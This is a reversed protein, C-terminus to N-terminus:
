RRKILSAVYVWVSLVNNPFPHIHVALAFEVDPSENFHVGTAKVAETVTTMDVYPLNIPFGCMKHSALIYQLQQMHEPSTSQRKNWAAEELAPLLKRLVATCYRNWLTRTTPRWRALSDRLHKELRDRLRRCAAVSTETYELVPPQVSSCPAPVDASFAPWWDSRRGTDYRTRCPLDERQTNAWVNKDNLLCHVRRLPCFSDAVDCCHATVPDWLRYRGAPEVTLVYASPGHPAAEGLLVWAQRGAHLLYCCLLVAHDESDGTLLQLVQSSTLWIDFLGPFLMSGAVVPIMAVFRAAMEATTDEGELIVPPPLPRIFRTVCVTKGSTDVVTTKVKRHPFLKAVDREWADLHHEVHALESSELRVKIPKPPNLTPQVTIFLTLFAADRSPSWMTTDAGPSSTGRFPQGRHPEREYGLLVAPCKLRFTGETRPNYCLATFPIRLSGLWSRELRHHVNTPRLRDDEVLDVVVEDFLHFFVSDRVSQWGAASGDGGVARVPIQLEENWTPSCGEATATRATSEQFTVEVFPRVVPTQQVRLGLVSGVTDTDKRAPVQFAQVVSVIIKVEAGALSQVAVARREQREPRLPRKPRLWKMLTLGLTGIDPVHDETVLDRLERHQRALRCQRFVRQRVELLFRRGYARHADLPEMAPDAPEGAGSQRKECVSFVEMPIEKENLPVACVGRFEPEGKDRLRLLRLRPNDDLHKGSCFDFQSQVPDLRFYEPEKPVAAVAKKIINFFSANSPDNPDLHSKEVWQRLKTVAVPGDTHLLAMIDASGNDRTHTLYKDPVALINGESSDVGWGARCSVYGSTHLCERGLSSGGPFPSFYLGSGVGSHSPVVVQTSSFELRMAKCNQLTTSSSPFPVYVEAILHRKFTSEEEHLEIKLCEPLQIICIPFVEGFTVAFTDNLPHRSSECVVSDNFFIKVYLKRHRVAARRARENNPAPNQDVPLSHTLELHLLPEGPPRMCEKLREEVGAAMGVVDLEGSEEVEEDESAEDARSDETREQAAEQQRKCAKREELLEETERRVAEDWAAQQERPDGGQEQRIHLRAPTVSYGQAERLRKLDRWLCLIGALLQRDRCGEQQWLRRTERVEERYRALRAAQEPLLDPLARLSDRAQRLAALKGALRREQGLAVRRAHHRCQEELRRSLVHERSFLPHHSFEVGGLELELLYLGDPPLVAGRGPCRVEAPKYEVEQNCHLERFMATNCPIRQRPDPLTVVEGDDGFWKTSGESVLRRELRCANRRAVPPRAGVYLGEDELYRPERGPPLKQELSVPGSGPCFLLDQERAVQEARDTCEPSAHWLLQWDSGLGLVESALLKEREGQGEGDGTHSKPSSTPALQQEDQWVQTFFDLVAVDSPGQSSSVQLAADQWKTRVREHKELAAVVEEEERKLQEDIHPTTSQVVRRRRMRSRNQTDVLSSGVQEKVAHFRERLRDRYSRTDSQSTVSRSRDPSSEEGSWPCSGVSLTERAQRQSSDRPLWEGTAGSKVSGHSPTSRSRTNEDVTSLRPVTGLPSGGASSVAARGGAGRAQLVAASSGPERDRSRHRGSSSEALSTDVEDSSGATM